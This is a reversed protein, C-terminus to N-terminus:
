CNKRYQDVVPCGTLLFHYQLYLILPHVLDSLMSQQEGDISGDLFAQVLTDQQADIGEAIFLDGIVLAMDFPGNKKHLSAVRGLLTKANFKGLRAIDQSNPRVLTAGFV